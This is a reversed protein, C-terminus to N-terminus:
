KRKSDLYKKFPYTKLKIATEGVPPYEENYERKALALAKKDLGVAKMGYTQVLWTDFDFRM